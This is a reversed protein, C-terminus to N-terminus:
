DGNQVYSRVSGKRREYVYLACCVITLVFTYGITQAQGIEITDVVELAVPRPIVTSFIAYDYPFFRVLLVLAHVIWCVTIVRFLFLRKATRSRVITVLMTALTIFLFISEGRISFGCDARVPLVGSHIEERAVRWGPQLLWLPLYLPFWSFKKRRKELIFALLVVATSAAAMAYCVKYSLYASEPSLCALIYQFGNM